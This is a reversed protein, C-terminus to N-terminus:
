DMCGALFPCPTLSLTLISLLPNAPRRVTKKGERTTAALRWEHGHIIVAPLFPLSPEREGENGDRRRLNVLHTLLNWQSAQWTGIQLAAEEDSQGTRKTEISIAIPRNQLAALDTHNISHLPLAERLTKIAEAAGADSASSPDISICFDIKKAGARSPLYTDIISATTCPDFGLFQTIRSAGGYLALSLLPFHVACNWTHEHGFTEHCHRSWSLIARVASIPPTPGLLDREEAPAFMWDPARTVATIEAKCASSIAGAGRAILEFDSLLDRLPLPLGEADTSLMRPIVGDDGLGLSLLRKTPSSRRSAGSSAASSADSVSSGFHPRDVLSAARPTADVDPNNDPARTRRRKHIPTAPASADSHPDM